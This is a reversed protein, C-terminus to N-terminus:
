CHLHDQSQALLQLFAAKVLLVATVLPYRDMVLEMDEGQLVERFVSIAHLNALSVHTEQLNGGQARFGVTAVEIAVIGIGEEVVEDV